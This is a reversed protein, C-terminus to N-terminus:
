EGMRNGGTRGDAVGPPAMGPPAKFKNGCTYCVAPFGDSKAARLVVKLPCVGKCGPRTCQVLAKRQENTKPPMGGGGHHHQLLRRARDVALLARASQRDRRARRHWSLEGEPRRDASASRGASCVM